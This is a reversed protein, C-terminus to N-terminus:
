RGREGRIENIQRVIECSKAMSKAHGIQSAGLGFTKVRTGDVRVVWANYPWTERLEVHDVDRWAIRKVTLTNRLV